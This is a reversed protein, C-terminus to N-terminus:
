TPPGEKEIENRLDSLTGSRPILYAEEEAEYYGILGRIPGEAFTWDKDRVSEFARWAANADNSVFLLWYLVFASLIDRVDEHWEEDAGRKVVFLILVDVLERPLRALLMAPLGQPHVRKDYTLAGRIQILAKEVTATRDEPLVMALFESLVPKLKMDKLRSVFAPNPRSVVEWDKAYEWPATTKAVRLSALVLDVEGALRGSRDMIEKMRDHIEPYQHKIISYTLEDDSLRTGGQGLRTFFRIYEEENAVIDHGVQQLVVQSQLAKELARVFEGVLKESAGKKLFESITGDLDNKTLVSNCIDAFSIACGAGIIDRGTVLVFAQQPTEQVGRKDRWEKWKEQREKLEIKQNPM